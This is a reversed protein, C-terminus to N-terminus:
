WHKCQIVKKNIICSSKTSGGLFSSEGMTLVPLCGPFFALQLPLPFLSCAPLSLTGPWNVGNPLPHTNTLFLFELMSMWQTMKPSSGPASLHFLSKWWKLREELGALCESWVGLLLVSSCQGEQSRTGECTGSHRDSFRGTRTKVTGWKMWSDMDSVKIKQSLIM